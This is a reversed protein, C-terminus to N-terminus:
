CKAGALAILSCFTKESVLWKGGIEVAQGSSSSGLLAQGGALITYTVNATTGNLAIAGVKAMVGAPLLHHLQAIQSQHASGNELLAVQGSTPTNANFFSTWTTTIAAKAQAPSEQSSCAALALAVVIAGAVMSMAARARQARATVTAPHYTATPM